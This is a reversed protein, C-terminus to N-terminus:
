TTPQDSVARIQSLPFAAGNITLYPETGDTSAGTIRAQITTWTEVTAGEQDKAEIKLKYEGDPLTQQSDNKGDWTLVHTGQTAPGTLSRVLVNNKDYIKVTAGNANSALGYAFKVKEGEFHLVNDNVEAYKGIYGLALSNISSRQLAMQSQLNENMGIQQEVQAFGVLQQTFENSEMPSLPDQNQLQTTLMLLFADLDGSIKNKAATTDVAGSAAETSANKKATNAALQAYPNTQQQTVGTTTAM